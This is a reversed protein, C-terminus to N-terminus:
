KRSNSNNSKSKNNQNNNQNQTNNNGNSNSNNSKSKNKDTQNTNVWVNSNGKSTNYKSDNSYRIPTQTKDGKYGVYEKKHVKNQLWPQSDNLVVKYLSYFDTKRYKDPLYQASIWKSGSLYYYLTNNIDYYINLDPFYYYAAYSYGSPGWAPQKDINVNINVNVNQAHASTFLAMSFAISLIIMLKKM